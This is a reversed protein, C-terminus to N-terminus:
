KTKDTDKKRKDMCRHCRCRSTDPNHRKWYIGGTYTERKRANRRGNESAIVEDPISAPDIDDHWQKMAGITVSVLIQTLYSSGCCYSSGCGIPRVAIPRVAIFIPHVASPRVAFGVAM